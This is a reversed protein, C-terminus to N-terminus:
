RQADAALAAVAKDRWPSDLHSDVLARLDARAGEANGMKLRSQATLWRAEAEFGAGQGLRSALALLGAAEAFGERQFEVKGRLFFWMGSVQDLPLEERWADLEALAEALRKAALHQVIREPYAGSKSVRVQAPFVVEALAEALMYLESARDTQAGALYADGLAVAAGRLAAKVSGALGATRAADKAEEFLKEAAAVDVEAIGRCRALRGATEIRRVPDKMLALAAALHSAGERSADPAPPTWLLAPAGADGALAMQAEATQEATVDPRHLMLDAAQRALSALRMDGLLYLYEVLDAAPFAATEAREAFPRYTGVAAQVFPGAVHEIPFVTLPWERRVIGGDPGEAEMVTPYARTCLFVHEVPSGTASQGDGFQWSVRWDSQTPMRSGFDATFRYRTYQGRPRTRPWASDVLEVRPTPLAGGSAAEYRAIQAAHPRPFLDDPIGTFQPKGDVRKGGPPFWGLFAVQYLLVEEHFYEVYHLGADLRAETHKEGYKGRDQTHQGPWHILERGDLFSFSGENSATCFLYVGGAPIRLWGRYVSLYYDSDGFANVGDSINARIGAGDPGSSNALLNQMEDWTKPNPTDRPRRMTVLMLGAKPIWGSAAPGANPPGAGFASAVARLPDPAADRKGFYICYLASADTCRFSILSDRQPDHFAVEYPLPQGTADFVRYDSADSRTVGAHLV